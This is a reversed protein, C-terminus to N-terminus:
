IISGMTAGTQSSTTGLPVMETQCCVGIEDVFINFNSCAYHMFIGTTERQKNQIAMCLKKERVTQPRLHEILEPVQFFNVAMKQVILATIGM